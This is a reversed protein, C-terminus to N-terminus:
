PNLWGQFNIVTSIEQNVTCYKFNTFMEESLFDHLKCHKKKCLIGMVNTLSRKMDVHIQCLYLTIVAMNSACVCSLYLYMFHRLIVTETYFCWATM